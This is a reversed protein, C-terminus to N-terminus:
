GGGSLTGLPYFDHSGLDYLGAYYWDDAEEDHDDNQARSAENASKAKCQLDGKWHGVQGCAACTTKAKLEDLSM